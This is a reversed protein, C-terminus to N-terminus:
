TPRPHRHHMNRPITPCRSNHVTCEHDIRDCEVSFFRLYVNFYKEWERLARKLQHPTTKITCVQDVYYGAKFTGYRKCVERAGVRNQCRSLARHLANETKKPLKRHIQLRFSGVIIYMEFANDRIWHCGVHAGVRNQFRSLARNETKKPLKRLEITKTLQGVNWGFSNTNSSKKELNGKADANSKKTMVRAAKTEKM